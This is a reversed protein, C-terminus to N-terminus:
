DKDTAFIYELGEYIAKHVYTFHTDKDMLVSKWRLNRPANAQILDVFEQMTSAEDGGTYEHAIYLTKDLKDHKNMFEESKKLMFRDHWFLCPSLAIYANFIGPRTLLTYLTFTGALSHGALIKTSSARYNKEIFPMIDKELCRIFNEAGGTYSRYGPWTSPSFDRGRSTNIVAVVMMKPTKEVRPRALFQVIGSAHIFHWEGDLLYLVPYKEGSREYDQPLYVLIDRDEDLVDSHLRIKEGINFPEKKIQAVVSVCVFFFSFLILPHAKKM